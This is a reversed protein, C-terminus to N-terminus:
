GGGRLATGQYIRVHDLALRSGQGVQIVGGVGGDSSQAVSFGISLHQIAVNVTGGINFIRFSKGDGRLTTTSADDGVITVDSAVPLSTSVVNYAGKPMLITDAGTQRQAETLAVRLTTCNYPGTGSCDGAGDGFGTVNFTAAQAPGAAALAALGATM